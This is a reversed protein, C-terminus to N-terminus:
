PKQSYVTSKWFIIGKLALGVFLDFVSLCNMLLINSWNINLHEEGNQSTIIFM